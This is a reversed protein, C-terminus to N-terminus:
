KGSVAGKLTAGPTAKVGFGAPVDIPEGTRPNRAQRAAREVREVSLFGPIQVKDGSSVATTVTETFARLVGDADKQSVGSKEALAAVLETRNVHHDEQVTDAVVHSLARFRVPRRAGVAV